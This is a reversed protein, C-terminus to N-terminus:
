AAHPTEKAAAAEVASLTQYTEDDLLLTRLLHLGVRGRQLAAREAEDIGSEALAHEIRASARAVGEVAQARRLADPKRFLRAVARVCAHLAARSGVSLTGIAAAERLDIIAHGAELVSLARGLLLRDEGTSRDAGQLLQGLLDRTSNEFRHRLGPLSATCALLTRRRLSRVMHLRLRRSGVPALLAFALAAALAGALSAVGDNIVGAPDFRTVNEVGVINGFMILYGTGIGATKPQTMLKIGFMIFPAMGAALLGFGDLPPLVVFACVFAAALGLVFGTGLMRMALVPAPSSAFLCCFVCAIIAANPGSPWATVIWFASVTLLAVVGRLGSLAALIPDAHAVYRPAPRPARAGPRALSAYSETYHHMDGTFRLLLDAASDFDLLEDPDADPAITQRAAAIRQPLTARYQQLRTVLPAAEAATAPLAGREPLLVGSLEQYLQAMQQLAHHCRRRRLRQMMQHLLHISTTATMYEANFLRLRGDRVRSDPNEFYAADRLAEFAIVNAVFHNHSREQAAHDFQGQLVGTVFGLFEKYGGRVAGVLGLGLPQPLVLDTVVGACLIGLLVESVRFVATNFTIQPHLASPFGILCATYGALVFAYARFNRFLAAGATCLGVWVSMALLFLEREQSFLGVLAFTALCGVLTGVVRWFSKALVLGTQPQAVIFVTLMASRPSDFGLRFAIWLALLAAALTKFVFIWARGEGGTWDRLAEGWTAPAAPTASQPTAAM